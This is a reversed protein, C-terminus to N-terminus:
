RGNYPVEKQPLRWECNFGLAEAVRLMRPNKTYGTIKACKCDRAFDEIPGFAKKWGEVTVHVVPVVFITALVLSTVGFWEDHRLHTTIAGIFSQGGDKRAFLGWCQLRGMQASAMMNTVATRTASGPEEEDLAKAIALAVADHYRSIDGPSLRVALVDEIRTVNKRKSLDASQAEAIEPM